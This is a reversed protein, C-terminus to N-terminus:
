YCRIIKGRVGRQLRVERAPMGRAAITLSLADGEVRGTIRVPDTAPAEDARQPGGRFISQRGATSFRGRADPRIANMVVEGCGEVLRGGQATLELAAQPAGWSGEIPRGAAPASVCSGGLLALALPFTRM